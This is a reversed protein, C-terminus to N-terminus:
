VIAVSFPRTDSNEEIWKRWAVIEEITLTWDQYFSIVISVGPETREDGLYKSFCKWVEGKWTIVSISDFSSFLIM